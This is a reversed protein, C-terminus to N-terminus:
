ARVPSRSSERATTRRVCLYMEDIHYLQVAMKLVVRIYVPYMVSPGPPRRAYPLLFVCSSHQVMKKVPFHYATGNHVFGVPPRMQVCYQSIVEASLTSLCFHSGNTVATGSPRMKRLGHMQCEHTRSCFHRCAHLVPFIRCVM